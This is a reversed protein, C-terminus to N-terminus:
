DFHFYIQNYCRIYILQEYLYIYTLLLSHGEFEIEDESHISKHLTPTIYNLKGEGTCPYQPAGEDGQAKKMERQVNKKNQHDKPHLNLKKQM